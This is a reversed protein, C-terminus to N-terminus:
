SGGLGKLERAYRRWNAVYNAAALALGRSREPDLEKVVRGPSGMIMVGDPFEKGEPILTNAGIISGKGIKVGNLLISGIGILSGDGITCGHLMVMHGITVDAGVFLPVGEDTHLVSGDQVNSGEGIVIPDNDGRVTCGFWISANTKLEVAGIVQANPAIWYQGEQPLIPSRAGLSYIPL